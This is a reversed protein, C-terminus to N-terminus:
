GCSSQLFLFSCEHDVVGSRAACVVRRQRRLLRARCREGVAQALEGVCVDACDARQVAAAVNSGPDRLGGAERRDGHVCVGEAVCKRECCGSFKDLMGMLSVNCAFSIVSHDPQAANAESLSRKGALGFSGPARLSLSTLRWTM